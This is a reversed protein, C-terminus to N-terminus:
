PNEGHRGLNKKDGPRPTMGRRWALHIAMAVLGVVGLGCRTGGASIAGLCVVIGGIVFLAQGRHRHSVGVSLRMGLLAIGIGVIEITNM